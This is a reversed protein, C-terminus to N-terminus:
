DITAVAFVIRYPLDLLAPVNPTQEQLKLLYPCFRICNAHTKIGPLMFSPRNVSNKMFGYVTYQFSAKEGSERDKSLDQFWSFPTLMFSGDPSWALRRV